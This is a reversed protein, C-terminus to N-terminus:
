IINNKHTNNNYMCVSISFSLSLCIRIAAPLHGVMFSSVCFYKHRRM